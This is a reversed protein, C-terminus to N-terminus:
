FKTSGQLGAFKTSTATVHRYSTTNYASGSVAYTSVYCCNNPFIYHGVDNQGLGNRLLKNLFPFLVDRQKARIQKQLPM